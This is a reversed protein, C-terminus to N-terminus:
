YSPFYRKFLVDTLGTVEKSDHKINRKTWENELYELVQKWDAMGEIPKLFQSFENINGRFLKKVARDRKEKWEPEREFLDTVPVLNRPVSEQTTM